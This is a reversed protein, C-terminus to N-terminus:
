SVFTGSVFTGSVPPPQGDNTAHANADRSGSCRTM